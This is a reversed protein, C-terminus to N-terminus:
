TSMGRMRRASSSRGYVQESPGSRRATGTPSMPASDMRGTRARRRTSGGSSADWGRCRPSCTTSSGPSRSSTTSTPAVSGLTALVPMVDNEMRATVEPLHDILGVLAKVEDPHTTEALTQWPDAPPRTLSPACALRPARDGARGPGRGPRRGPARASSSGPPTRPSRDPRRTVRRTAGGGLLAEAQDLLALARPVAGLLAEVQDGGRELAALVDRPGPVPLRM